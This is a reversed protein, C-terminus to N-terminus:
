ARAPLPPFDPRRGSSRWYDVLGIDRCLPLFRPDDRLRATAPVWLMMTMRNHLDTISAQAPTHRLQVILPGRRLLFGRAVDFAADLAGMFSLVMIAQTAQAPGTTAARLNAAIAADIDPRANTVLAQLSASLIRIAEPPMAPRADADQLMAMAARARGTYALTSCRALWVASHRPWLQVARDAVRDMEAIRGLSWLVYVRRFQRNPSLPEKAAVQSNLREAARVQGTSMFLAALAAIAYLNAPDVKLVADLRQQAASWDGFIPMLTALATLADSQRPELALARSAATEAQRISAAVDDPGTTESRARWALALKGWAAANEPALRAAETLVTIAQADSSPEGDGLAQTGKEILEAVRADHSRPWASFIAVGAAGAALISVGGILLARRPLPNQVPSDVSGNALRAGGAPPAPWAGVLRYGTKPITEIEIGAASVKRIARRLDAVATNLSDEAVFRGQWCREALVERSVVDGRADALALLLLMVRPPVTVTDGPGQLQRIAPFVILESISFPARESLDVAASPVRETGAM